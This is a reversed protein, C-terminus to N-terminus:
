SYAVKVPILLVATGEIAQGKRRIGRRKEEERKRGRLYSKPTGATDMLLAQGRRGKGM